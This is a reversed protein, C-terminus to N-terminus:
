GSNQEVSKTPAASFYRVAAQCANAGSEEGRGLPRDRRQHTCSQAGISRTADGYAPVRCSARAAVVGQAFGDYAAGAQASQESGAGGASAAQDQAPGTGGRLCIGREQPYARQHGRKPPPLDVGARRAESLGIAIAQKTSRAGHEGRRIKDIEDRVFEGAQTSASKGARRDRRAKEITRKDPM